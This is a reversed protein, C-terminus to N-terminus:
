TQLEMARFAYEATQRHQYMEAEQPPIFRFSSDLKDLEPALKEGYGGIVYIESKEPVAMLEFISILYNMESLTIPNSVKKVVQKHFGGDATIAWRIGAVKEEQRPLFAIEPYSIVVWTGAIIIPKPNFVSICSHDHGGAFVAVGKETNGVITAPSMFELSFPFPECGHKKLLEVAWRRQAINFMGSNGAHTLEWTNIETNALRSAIYTSVPLAPGESYSPFTLLSQFASCIDREVDTPTGTKKYYDESLPVRNHTPGYITNNYVVGEGFSLPFIAQYADQEFKSMVERVCTELTDPSTIDTPLKYDAIIDLSRNFLYGKTYSCGIDLILIQM